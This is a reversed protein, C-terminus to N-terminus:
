QRWFEKGRCWAMVERSLYQGPDREIKEVKPRVIHMDRLGYVEDNESFPMSVADPRTEHPEIDLFRYISQMQSVPDAILEDYEVLLLYQGWGKRLADRLALYYGGLNGAPELLYKCRADNDPTIGAKVLNKDVYNDAGSKEILVLYSILIDQVNRVACIVRPEPTIYNKIHDVQNMWGRSKDVICPEPTDFYYLQALSSLVNQASDPKPYARYQESKELLYTSSYHILDLLPSNASAHIKPHQNLLASLLTSGSRPLGSLFFFTKDM